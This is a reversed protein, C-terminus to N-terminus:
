EKVDRWPVADDTYQKALSQSGMERREEREVREGREERRFSFKFAMKATELRKLLSLV